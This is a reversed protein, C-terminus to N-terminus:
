HNRREEQERRALERYYEPPPPGGFRSDYRVFGTDIDSISWHNLPAKATAVAMELADPGDDHKGLPFARLQELLLQHRRSFVLHGQSVETELAAIRQQKGARNKIANVTFPIGQARARRKLDDVMLQQFQNAEVGFNSIRYMKAYTIIREIAQDPTMRALDAAIVYRTQSKLPQYLLVIATYDGRTPDGGLSPDCAGFVSGYKGFRKVLEEASQFQDDWYVMKASAFICQQPDLPENQLEAQFASEGERLRIRMLHEYSYVEPWLVKGSNMAPNDTLYATAADAGTADKYNDQGRLISAWRDWLDPRDSFEVVARYKMAKWGPSKHPDLLNALLSDHHFVTGVVIVNTSPTGAKLLTSNFWDALNRRQDESIVKLKDEVDDAIILTPRHKGHRAGRLNQGASYSAFLSGSPLLISGKRWPAVKRAKWLEPFDSQLLPNSELQRKVHDLLKSAQDATGSVVVVFQEREYVLCWLAYALTVITSKAHGRPAAVALYTGRRASMGALEAFLETHMPCFPRDFLPALYIRAFAEPSAAGLSRRQKSLVSAVAGAYRADIRM